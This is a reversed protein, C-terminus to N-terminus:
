HRSSILNTKTAPRADHRYGNLKSEAPVSSGCAAVLTLLRELSTLFEDALTGAPMVGALVRSVSFPYQRGVHRGEQGAASRQGFRDIRFGITTTELRTM